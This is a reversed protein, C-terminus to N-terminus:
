QVKGYITAVPDTYVLKWDTRLALLNNLPHTSPLITWGVQYKQLVDDWSRRVGNVTDFEKIFEPGYFDNRGDVFVKHAPLALMLYGGWSYDNFMQGTVTGPNQQLFQVAGVPFHSSLLSTAIIPEGNSRRPGALTLLLVILALGAAPRGDGADSLRTVNASFRRYSGLWRSTDMRAQALQWHEALIPTVVLAFVPVNRAALLGLLGWTGVVTIDTANLKPRVVLLLVAVLGLEILFGHVGNGHFDPSRFENAYQALLPDHLFELVHAPLQWGNPNLFTALGCAIWIGILAGLKRFIGPRAGRQCTPLTLANGLVFTAIIVLGTFFAGHLNVWLVMLPVLRLFLTHMPLKGRDFSRLQWTFVVVLVHTFLHPRALWHVSCSMAAFLVLIISLLLDNGESLLERYLLWLCTAILMASLLVIGNWGAANGAVAFLVEALWEKSILPVGARTNSFVDARIVTHHQIMWQGIRWHLCSDGDSNILALRWQSLSLVLLFILWLSLGISPLWRNRRPTNPANVIDNTM